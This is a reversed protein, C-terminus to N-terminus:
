RATSLNGTRHNALGLHYRYRLDQPALKVSRQLDALGTAPAEARTARRFLAEALAAAASPDQQAVQSWAAIADDM